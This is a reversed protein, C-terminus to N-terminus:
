PKTAPDAPPMNAAQDSSQRSGEARMQELRRWIDAMGEVAQFKERLSLSRFYALQSLNHEAWPDLPTAAPDETAM